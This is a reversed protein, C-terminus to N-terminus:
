SHNIQPAERLWDLLMHVGSGHSGKIMVLDDDRLGDTLASKLQELSQVLVGRRREDVRAWCGRYLDGLMHVRDVGSREILPALNTHYQAANEGLELMEGLVAIKRKGTNMGAFLELSAAMSGPNANYADNLVTLRVGNLNLNHVDGRGPVPDFSALQPLMAEVDHGLAIAVGLVALSNLAMHRGGAGLAYELRRGALQASVLSHRQDYSLLRMDTDDDEGYNLVKLGRARAALRVEDWHLMDRNLIAVGGPRMGEFIRAKRQAITRTDRHYELHAPLINTFLAVDPRALQANQRMRGIAMELVIHPTARDICALNWAVGPPLNANFRTQGVEGWPRLAHSLMAVTSTKGASGTVGIVTGTFRSRAHRGLDLVAKPLDAVRLQPLTDDRITAEDVIVASPSVALAAEQAAAIGFRGEGRAVIMDGPRFSPAFICLGNATWGGPPPKTWMGGTAQAVERMSWGHSESLDASAATTELGLARYAILGSLFHEVDDIRVRFAHHRIFFSGVVRDPRAYFMALEPWFHGNALHRARAHMAGRFRDLDFSDLLHRCGPHDQLRRIVRETAAALELLTPFATIRHEIFDLYDGVNRLGLRFYKELPRVQTMEDVCYALWHDHERWREEAIFHNMARTAADLWRDEGTTRFLRLLAFVAEGDYYVVRFRQKLRLSPYNLVHDFRGTRADQMAVIAAGLGDLLADHRRGGFVQEYKALALAAAAMGGLKIENGEDILWAANRGDDLKSWKIFSDVLCDIGREIAARLSDDPAVEWAEVMAYLSSAHRLGNYTNISRDFCPHCGYDFRGDDRVQRALYASGSRVMALITDPTFTGQERIGANLGAGDIPHILGDEGAFLARTSFLWVDGDSSFDVTQLGHRKRAYRRFNAKNIGAGPQGAGMYFMANANLETELFAHDFGPDLSLGLRFYNRKVFPLQAYLEAWSIARAADIWDVRLWRIMGLDDGIAERMRAVGLTWAEEFTAGAATCVLARRSGDTCSFFLVVKSTGDTCITAAPRAAEKLTELKRDLTTM